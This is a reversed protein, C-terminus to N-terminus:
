GVNKKVGYREHELGVMADAWAAAALPEMHAASRAFDHWRIRERERAKQQMEQLEVEFDWELRDIRQLLAGLSMTSAGMIQVFVKAAAVADGEARHADLQIGRRKCVATLKHRGPGHEEKDASRAMALVCVWPQKPDFIEASGEGSLLKHMIRRDYGRNFALPVAGKAVEIIEHSVDVLAPKGAVDADTLGHVATSDAPIPSTTRLLSSFRAKIEGRSSVRVLAVEVPEATEPDASTAEFDCSVYDFETWPKSLDFSM